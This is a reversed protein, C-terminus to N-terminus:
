VYSTAACQEFNAIIISPSNLTKTTSKSCYKDLKNKQRDENSTVDHFM